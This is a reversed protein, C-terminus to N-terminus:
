DYLDPAIDAPQPQATFYKKIGADAGPKAEAVWKKIAIAISNAANDSYRRPGRSGPILANASEHYVKLRVGLDEAQKMFAAPNPSNKCM